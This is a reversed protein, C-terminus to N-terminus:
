MKDKVSKVIEKFEEKYEDSLSVRNLRKIINDLEDESSDVYQDHRLFMGFEAVCSAFVFDDNPRKKYDGKGIVKKLLYSSDETAEKYRISLTAWEDNYAEDSLVINQYKLNDEFESEDNREIEYLMTVSRNSGIDGADKLDNDFDATELLRNEYGILRYEKVYVPNFEIQFKVDKSVITTNASLEKCLVKDAEKQSDIYFYVGNGNDALKEMMSDNLNDLGFGLVSLGIGTDRKESILNVLESDSSVGVNFDGDTALIIRNNGGEIFYKQAIEYAKEIGAAGNTTGGASLIQLEDIIKNKDKGKLGDLMVTAKGSYVVISIVDDRQLRDIMKQLAPIMLGLKDESYMSGSVDILFVYNSPANENYEVEKTRCGVMLLEHDENWPCEAITTEIGFPQGEQPKPYDYSFYNVMEELRISGAPISDINNTREIMRRLISYSATDVDASFTSVPNDLVYNFDNEEIDEYRGHGLSGEGDDIVTFYIEPSESVTPYDKSIIGNGASSGWSTAATYSSAGSNAAANSMTSGSCSGSQCAVSGKGYGKIYYEYYSVTYRRIDEISEKREESSKWDCKEIEGKVLPIYINCFIGLNSNKNVYVGSYDFAKMIKKKKVFNDFSSLCTVALIVALSATTARVIIRSTKKKKVNESKLNNEEKTSKQRGIM